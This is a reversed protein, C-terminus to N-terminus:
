RRCISRILGRGEERLWAVVMEATAQQGARAKWAQQRRLGMRWGAALYGKGICTDDGHQRNLGKTVSQQKPSGTWVGLRSRSIEQSRQRSM